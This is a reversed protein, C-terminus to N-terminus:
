LSRLMRRVMAPGEYLFGTWVQVLDAGADLKEKADKGTFIGGVAVIAIDESLKNRLYRVVETSRERLIKGSLGGAGMAAVKEQSAKLGARSITTNTAVIGSLKLENVIGVIDDLQGDTLDPAIKLMLPKAGLEENKAKVEKLLAKLPEKEQLERLNPTNPSSVNVVFYDVVDHLAEVGKIYDSTAVDNPTVKNKGINGGIIIDTKKKALRLAAANLGGNNFGMRNIVAEDEVIRFLRPKPNGDQPKPTLTGVEIFGFGFASLENYLKADKDFGAALGVPNKFHLGMVQKERGKLSGFFLSTIAKVGPIQFLVKLTKFTFHHAQEANMLFLLPRILGKYM